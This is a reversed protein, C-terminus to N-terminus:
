TLCHLSSLYSSQCFSVVSSWQQLLQHCIYLFCPSFIFINNCRVNCWLEQWQAPKRLLATIGLLNGLISCMAAYITVISLEENPILIIIWQWSNYESMSSRGVSYKFSLHWQTLPQGLIIIPKSLLLSTEPVPSWDTVKGSLSFVEHTSSPKPSYFGLPAHLWKWQSCGLIDRSM